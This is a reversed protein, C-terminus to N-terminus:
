WIQRMAVQCFPLYDVLVDLGQNEEILFERDWRCHGSSWQDQIAWTLASSINFDATVSSFFNLCLGQVPASLGNPCFHQHWCSPRIVINMQQLNLFFDRWGRVKYVDKWSKNFTYLWLDHASLGLPCFKSMLLFRKDSRDNAVLKLFIGKFDSKICKKYMIYGRPLPLCSGPSLTKKHWCFPRIVKGTQELNWLFRKSTKIKYMKKEHNLAHIYGRAPPYVAGLPCLKSTLLFKKDSRDDTALKLDYVVITESFGMTKVKEWVFVYPVLNSRATFYTTTLGPEDNSYVQYYKLVWHQMDLKLTM